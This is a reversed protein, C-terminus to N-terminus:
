PSASDKLAAVIEKLRERRAQLDRLRARSGEVVESPARRVFEEDALKRSLSELEGELALRTRALRERERQPDVLGSLAVSIELSSLVTTISGSPRAAALPEIRLPETRALATIHDAAERLLVSMAGDARLHVALRQAPPLNLEARLSRVARVVTMVTEANAEIQANIVRADPAPWPSIMISEGTHPLRQWVEETLFPMIPHLLKMTEGLVTVMTHQTAQRRKDVEPERNGAGPERNAALDVKAMELFWDCYEGWIFEYLTRATKDFEFAELHETVAQAVRAFRSRIWLAATSLARESVAAHPDYGGLNLLVFRTANWIKTNFNRVDAIMKESFRLDQQAQACRSVLAFRVADAGYGRAEVMEMPDIGTGLSRSMRRGDLTMVTPAVYVDTFPVADMFHLGLMIMRAIWLLLIGRDSILVDGPYFYRLEPTDKPWGLTAFPWLASSFWTDLVDSDQTLATGGCKPCREPATKAAVREGCRDCQWVPIRHGWWLQRSITWPRINDLFQLAVNAWREHHFRVKGSRIAGAARAAMQTMDCFWQDSIYPEIVAHCRECTGVNTRYSEVREVLGAAKLDEGVVRRAEFRDMGAYKGTDPTMRGQPDLVVLVPLGHDTGIDYDLTDHGPTIKLAGTGFSPDVRRDAIVPVKRNVIPVIVETGILAQHRPDEPNVAVAVDAPITEPRQTAITISPGDGAGAYRVYWLETDVEVHEVELDAIASQDRPCWNIMRKGRYILGQQFLRVFAELVADYYPPDLTFVYRDWDLSFGMRKLQGDIIGGYRHKWEWVREVFKERGIQRLTLGEQALAREVVNQTAIGAHDTGPQWLANRGQMRRWRILVDQLSFTSATGIHSESTINPLPLMIVFPERSPDVPARFYGGRLWEAYRRPEVARSDYTKPLAEIAM